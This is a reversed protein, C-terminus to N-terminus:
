FSNIRIQIENVGPQLRVSGFSLNVTEGNVSVVAERKNELFTKFFTNIAPFSRIVLGPLPKCSKVDITVQSDITSFESRPQTSLRDCGTATKVGPGVRIM